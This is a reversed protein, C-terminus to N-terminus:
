DYFFVFKDVGEDGIFFDVNKLEVNFILRYDIKVSGRLFVYIFYEGVDLEM